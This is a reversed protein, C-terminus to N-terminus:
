EDRERWYNKPIAVLGHGLLIVVLFIGSCEDIFSLFFFSRGISPLPLERNCAM